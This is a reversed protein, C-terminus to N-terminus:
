EKGGMHKEWLRYISGFVNENCKECDGDGAVSYGCDSEYEKVADLFAEAGAIMDEAITLAMVNEPNKEKIKIYGLRDIVEENTM